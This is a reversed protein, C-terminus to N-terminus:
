RASRSPAVSRWDGGGRAWRSRVAVPETSATVRYFMAPVADPDLWDLGGTAIAEGSWDNPDLTRQLRYSRAGPVPTWQLRVGDEVVQISLAPAPLDAVIEDLFWQVSEETIEVHDQNGGLPYHLADFPSLELLDPAGDIPRFPDDTVLGLASTTPIFCHNDHLAVVDGYPVASQDIQQMSNRRGGPANDWPSAGDVAVTQDRDPLPWIKDINGHFITGPTHDGLSWSNGDIDVLWSRYQYSVIQDGAAFGQDVGTGSGNAVAVLRPAAPWDGLAALDDLLTRRLPDAAPVPNPPNEAMALLMQRAAPTQLRSAYHAAEESEGAFFSLWHQLGLPIDAGAQPSDFSIFTRVRHDVGQQELWALAYRSVLGGMSAGILPYREGAPVVANVQELLTALLLANRQIYDTSETFNLVVADFGLELLTEVLQQQNTLGYLEEWFMENDMDFGECVVVPRTVAAHGPALLVYANGTAYAGSYGHASTLNWVESPEPTTLRVVTFRLDTRRQDGDAWTARLRVTKEGVTKYSVVVREGPEREAFGSGDDFDWELRAPREARNSIWFDGAPLQFDVASGRGSSEVLAAAAFLRETRLAAPDLIRLRDGDVAVQGKALAEARVTECDMDLLALPVISRQRAARARERLEEPGIRSSGDVTAGNLQFLLQRFAAPQVPVVEQRGDYRAAGAFDVALDLLIGTRVQERDAAALAIPAAHGARPGILLGLLLWAAVALGKTTRRHSTM